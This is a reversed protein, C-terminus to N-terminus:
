PAVLKLAIGVLTMGLGVGYGQWLTRPVPVRPVDRYRAFHRVALMLQTLWTAVALLIGITAFADGSQTLILMADTRM